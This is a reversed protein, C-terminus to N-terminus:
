APAAHRGLVVEWRGPQGHRSKIRTWGHRASGGPSPLPAAHWRSEAANTALGGEPVLCLGIGGGSGAALQLRRSQTLDAARDLEAVVLPAAGSRLAEEMTQLLALRGVPRVLILRAPDFHGALGQPCLMERLRADILWLVPGDLGGAIAAAFARRGPGTAEHLRGAALSAEALLAGPPLATAPGAPPAAGAGRRLAASALGAPAPPATRLMDSVAKNM